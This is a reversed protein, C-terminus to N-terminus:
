FVIGYVTKEVLFTDRTFVCLIFLKNVGLSDKQWPKLLSPRLLQLSLIFSGVASEIGGRGERWISRFLPIIFCLAFIM